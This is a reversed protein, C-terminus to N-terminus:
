LLHERNARETEAAVKPQAKVSDKAFCVRRRRGAKGSQRMLLVSAHSVAQSEVKIRVDIWFDAKVSLQGGAWDVVRQRHILVKAFCSPAMGEEDAFGPDIKMWVFHRLKLGPAQLFDERIIRPEQKVIVNAEIAKVLLVRDRELSVGQLNGIQFQAGPLVNQAIRVHRDDDGATRQRLRTAPNSGRAAAWFRKVVAHADILFDFM